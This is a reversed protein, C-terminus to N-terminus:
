RRVTATDYGPPITLVFPDRPWVPNEVRQKVTLSLVRAGHALVEVERPVVRAGEHAYRAYRVTMGPSSVELCLGTAPDFRASWPTGDHVWLVTDHQLLTSDGPFGPLLEGWLSGLVAHVDLITLPFSAHDLATGTGFIVQRTDHRVLTWADDQWLWTAAIPTFLGLIDVRYARGPRAYFRSSVPLAGPAHALIGLDAQVTRPAPAPAPIDSVDGRLVALGWPDKLPPACATLTLTVLLLAPAALALIFRAMM